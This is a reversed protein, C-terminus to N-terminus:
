RAALRELAKRATTAKPSDSDWHDLFKRYYNGALDNRDTSEYLTALVFHVEVYDPDLELSRKWSAEAERTRGSTFYVQGLAFHLRDLEPHAPFRAIGELCLRLATATEGNEVYLRVLELRAHMHSPKFALVSQYQTLAQMKHGLLLHNRALALRKEVDDPTDHLTAGTEAIEDSIRRLMEFHKMSRTANENDRSSRLVSAM